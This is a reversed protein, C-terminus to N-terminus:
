EYYVIDKLTYIAKKVKKGQYPAIKQKGSISTDLQIRQYKKAMRKEGQHIGVALSALCLLIVIM